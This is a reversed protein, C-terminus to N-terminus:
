ETARSSITSITSTTTGSEVCVKAGDLELASNIRMARPVMFGQGDYYTVGGFTLGFETERGMTWTSNRSFVDIKGAQLAQFPRGRFAASTSRTRM